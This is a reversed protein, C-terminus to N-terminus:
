IWSHALVGKRRFAGFVAYTDALRQRQGQMAWHYNMPDVNVHHEFYVEDVLGLLEDSALLADVIGMETPSHDIDIKLLVYDEPRAV